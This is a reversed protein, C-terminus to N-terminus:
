FRTVKTKFELNPVVDLFKEYEFGHSHADYTMNTGYPGGFTDLHGGGGPPAGVEFLHLGGVILRYFGSLLHLAGM